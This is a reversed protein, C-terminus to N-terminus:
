EKSRRKESKIFEYNDKIDRVFDMILGPILSFFEIAYLVINLFIMFLAIYGLTWYATEFIKLIINLISNM